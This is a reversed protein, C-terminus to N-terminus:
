SREICNVIATKDKVLLSLLYFQNRARLFNHDKHDCTYYIDGALYDELFRIAQEFILYLTGHYLSQKEIESLQDYIVSKFGVSLGKMMDFQLQMESVKPHDEAVNVVTTRFLDAFEWSIHGAMTTDWDIIAYVEHNRFLLNSVKADNHIVRNKPFPLKTLFLFDDIRELLKKATLQRKSAAKKITQSLKELYTPLSHFDVITDKLQEPSLLTLAKDYAGFARGVKWAMDSNHAITFTETNEYFHGLRWFAGDFLQLPQGHNTQIWEPNKLPYDQEELHDYIVKHNVMLEAPRQFVNQNIRQLIYNSQDTHIKFSGNILGATIETSEFSSIDWNSLLEQL